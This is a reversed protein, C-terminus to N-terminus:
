KGVAASSMLLAFIMCTVVFLLASLLFAKFWDAVSYDEDGVLKFNKLSSMMLLFFVVDAIAFLAYYEKIFLLVSKLM